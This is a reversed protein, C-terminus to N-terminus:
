QVEPKHAWMAADILRRVGNLEDEATPEDRGNEQACEIAYEYRDKEVGVLGDAEFAFMLREADRQGHPAARRSSRLQENPAVILLGEPDSEVDRYDRPQGTHPNTLQQQQQQSLAAMIVSLACDESECHDKEELAQAWSEKGRKRYEAALLERARQEIDDM